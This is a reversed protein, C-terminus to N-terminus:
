IIKEPLIFIGPKVVEIDLVRNALMDRFGWVDSLSKMRYDSWDAEIQAERVAVNIKAQKILRQWYKRRRRNIANHALLCLPGKRNRNAKKWNM